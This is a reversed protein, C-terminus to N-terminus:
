RLCFLREKAMFLNLGSTAVMNNLWKKVITLGAGTGGGYKDRGHLRKFIGFINEINRARIGIGNDKVYFVTKEQSKSADIGIEIIPNESQNYKLGNTILNLLIERTKLPDCTFSGIKNPLVLKGNLEEIRGQLDEGIAEVLTDLDVPELNIEEQGVRAYFLLSDILQQLRGTLKTLTHLKKQGEEDIKDAYDEILFTAYNNIGRM